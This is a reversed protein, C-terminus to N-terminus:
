EEEDEEEEPVDGNAHYLLCDTCVEFHEIPHDDQRAQEESDAIVGHAPYRDGGLTSGCSDCESWSFHGESSAEREEDTPNDPDEAHEFCTPCGTCIGVSFFHVGKLNHDVRETFKM